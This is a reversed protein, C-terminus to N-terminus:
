TTAKKLSRKREFSMLETLFALPVVKAHDLLHFPNIVFYSGEGQLFM